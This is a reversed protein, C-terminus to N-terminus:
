REEWRKGLLCRGHNSTFPHPSSDPGITGLRKSLLFQNRPLLCSKWLLPQPEHKLHNIHTIPLLLHFKVQEGM